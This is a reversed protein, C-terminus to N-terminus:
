MGSSLCCKRGSIHTFNGGSSGLWLEQTVGLLRINSASTESIISCLSAMKVTSDSEQGVSDM